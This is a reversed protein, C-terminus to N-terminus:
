DNRGIDAAAKAVLDADIRAIDTRDDGRDHEAHRYLPDLVPHLIQLGGGKGAVVVHGALDARGLIAADNRQAAVHDGIVAGEIGAGVRGFIRGAEEADARAGIVDRHRMDHDIADIGVLRRAADGIATGEAYRFRGIEDLAHDIDERALQVHVRRFDAPLVQDAFLLERIMGRQAPFIVAAVVVGREVLGQLRDIVGVQALLLPAVAFGEGAAFRALKHPDADAEEGLDNAGPRDLIAVNEAEAHEIGTFNANMWGATGDGPEARDALALAM